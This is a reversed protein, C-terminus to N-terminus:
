RATSGERTSGAGNGGDGAAGAARPANRRDALPLDVATTFRHVGGTADYLALDIEVARPLRSPYTRDGSDWDDRWEVGDYFRFELSAVNDLFLTAPAPALDGTGVAAEQRRLLRQPHADDPLHYRPPFTAFFDVVDFADPDPRDPRMRDATDPFFYAITQQGTSRGVLGSPRDPVASFTLNDLPAVDTGDPFSLFRSTATSPAGEAAPYFAATLDDTIRAVASRGTRTVEIRDEAIARARLASSFSGYLATAVIGLITVALMAELLTFGSTPRRESV